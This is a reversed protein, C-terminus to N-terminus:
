IQTVNFIRKICLDRTFFNGIKIKVRTILFSQRKIEMFYKNM